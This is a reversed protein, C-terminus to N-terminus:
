IWKAEFSYGATHMQHLSLFVKIFLNEIHLTYLIIKFVTTAIHLMQKLKFIGESKNCVINIRKM